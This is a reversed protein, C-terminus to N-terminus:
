GNYNLRQNVYNLFNTLSDKAPNWPNDRYPHISFQKWTMEQFKVRGATANPEAGNKLCLALPTWFMDFGSLPYSNSTWVLVNTTESNWIESSIKHNKFIILVRVGEEILSISHGAEKLSTVEQTLNDPIM